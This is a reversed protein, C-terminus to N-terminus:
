SWKLRLVNTVNLLRVAPRVTAPILQLGESDLIVPNTLYLERGRRRLLCRQAALVNHVWDTDPGYTLGIAYGDDTPFALVPTSYRRGSRRGRHVVVAMPPLYPAFMGLIPNTVRRNFRALRDSLPV